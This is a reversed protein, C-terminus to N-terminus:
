ADLREAIMTTSTMATPRAQEERIAIAPVTVVSKSTKASPDKVSLTTQLLPRSWVTTGLPPTAVKPFWDNRREFRM